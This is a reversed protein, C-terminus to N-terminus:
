GTSDTGGHPGMGSAAQTLGRLVLLRRVWEEFLAQLAPHPGDRGSLRGLLLAAAEATCLRDPQSQRRVRYLSRYTPRLTVREMDRLTPIRRRMRHAQRWSAAVLVFVAHEERPSITAVVQAVEPAGPEPFVLFPRCGPRALLAELAGESAPDGRVVLLSPRVLKAALAGTNTSRGVESPHQYIVLTHPTEIPELGSCLCVLPPMGCTPCRPGLKAHHGM